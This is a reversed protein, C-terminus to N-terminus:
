NNIKDMNHSEEYQEGYLSEYKIIFSLRDHLKMRQRYFSERNSFYVGFVNLNDGAAITLGKSISNFNTGTTNDFNLLDTLIVSFHNKSDDIKNGDVFYERSIIVAPGLGNNSIQFVAFAANTSSSDDVSFTNNLRPMVSLHYHKRMSSGEWISITISAIAIIMASVSLTLEVPISRKVKTGKAKRYQEWHKDDEPEESM